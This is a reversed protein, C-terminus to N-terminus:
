HKSSNGPCATVFQPYGAGWVAAHAPMDPLTKLSCSISFFAIFHLHHIQQFIVVSQKGFEPVILIGRAAAAPNLERTVFSYSITAFILYSFSPGLALSSYNGFFIYIYIYIYMYLGDVVRKIAAADYIQSHSIYCLLIM